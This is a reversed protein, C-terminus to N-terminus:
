SSTLTWVAKDLCGYILLATRKHCYRNLSSWSYKFSVQVECSHKNYNEMIFNRDEFNLSVQSSISTQFLLVDNIQTLKKNICDVRTVASVRLVYNPTRLLWVEIAKAPPLPPNQGYYMYHTDMIVPHRYKKIKLNNRIVHNVTDANM